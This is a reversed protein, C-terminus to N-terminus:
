RGLQAVLVDAFRGAAAPDAHLFMEPEILEAEMLLPEGGSSVLDIRAYLTTGPAAHLAAAGVAREAATAEHAVVSGGHEEQVRFDGRAPLKRVAHSLVGGFYMLSVEGDEVGPLYPQVLADGARTLVALHEAAQASGADTLITGRASASIAPKIVVQAGHAALAAQRTAGAAGCRLLSTPVVPVGARALEVLYGKHTNWAIVRADNVLTTAAAVEEVWAMFQPHRETYDWPSRVVVLPSRSWDVPADWPVIEARCGRRDLAAVLLGSEIDWGFHEADSGGITALLVHPAACSNQSRAMRRSLRTRPL